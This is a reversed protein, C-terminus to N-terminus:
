HARLHTYSVSISIGFTAGFSVIVSFVLYLPAVLSRLLVVLVLFIAVLSIPVFWSLDRDISAKTDTQIATPGGLLIRHAGEERISSKSALTRIKAIMDLADASYPDDLLVIEIRATTGDPSIDRGGGARPADRMSVPRGTPRTPGKVNAVGDLDAIDASLQDIQIYAQSIPGDTSEILMESPALQGAPFAAVLM